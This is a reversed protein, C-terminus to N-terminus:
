DGPASCSEVLKGLVGIEIEYPSNGAPFPCVIDTFGIARLEGALGTVYGADSLCASRRPALLFLRRLTALPRGRAACTESLRAHRDRLWGLDLGAGELRFSRPGNSVWIGAHRVALDMANQDNGAVAVLPRGGEAAAWPLSGSVAFFEGQFEVHHGAILRATLEV